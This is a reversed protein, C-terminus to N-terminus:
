RDYLLRLRYNLLGWYENLTVALDEAKEEMPRLRLPSWPVPGVTFDGPAAIPEPAVKSFALMSRPMHTASTVLLYRRWGKQVLIKRVEVASEFTDRSNGEGIVDERPVEMKVLYDCTLGAGPQM